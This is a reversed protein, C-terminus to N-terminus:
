IQSDTGCDDSQNRTERSNDQIDGATDNDTRLCFYIFFSNEGVILDASYSLKRLPNLEQFIGMKTNVWMLEEMARDLSPGITYNKTIIM